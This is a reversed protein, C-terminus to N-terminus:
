TQLSRGRFVNTWYNKTTDGFHIRFFLSIELNKKFSGLQDLQLFNKVGFKEFYYEGFEVYTKADFFKYWKPIIFGGFPVGQKLSEDHDM